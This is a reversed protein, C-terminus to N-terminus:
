GEVPVGGISVIKLSPLTPPYVAYSPLAGSFWPDTGVTRENM